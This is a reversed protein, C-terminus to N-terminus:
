PCGSPYPLCLCPNRIRESVPSFHRFAVDILAVVDLVDPVDDCNIEGRHTPCGPDTTPISGHRFVYDVLAVVDAADYVSNTDLDGRFRCCCFTEVTAQSTLHLLDKNDPDRLVSEAFVLSSQTIDIGTTFALGAIRGPGDFNGALFGLNIVVSDNDFVEADFFVNPGLEPAKLAGDVALHTHDYTVKFYAAEVDTIEKSASIWLTDVDGCENMESSPAIFVQQADAAGGAFSLFLVTALLNATVSPVASRQPHM